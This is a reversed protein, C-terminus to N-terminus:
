QPNNFALQQIYLTTKDSPILTPLINWFSYQKYTNLLISLLRSVWWTLPEDDISSLEKLDLTYEQALNLWQEDGSYIYEIVLNLVKALIVTYFKFNEDMSDDLSIIEEEQFEDNLVIDNIKLVLNNIDKKLFTSVIDIFKSNSEAKKIAIFSKSYQSAIYFSLSSILLYFNSNEKKNNRPSHVQYIIDGSKEFAINSIENNVQQEKLTCAISLYSFAIYNIKEDLNETYNPFNDFPENAELLINKSSAQAILNQTFTDEELENFLQLAKEVTM